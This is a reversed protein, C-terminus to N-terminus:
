ARPARDRRSESLDLDDGRRAEPGGLALQHGAHFCRDVDDARPRVEGLPPRFGIGGRVHDGIVPVIADLDAPLEQEGHLRAAGRLSGALSPEFDPEAPRALPGALYPLLSRHPLHSRVSRRRELTQQAVVHGDDRAAEAQAPNGLVQDIGDDGTADLAQRHDAVIATDVAPSQAHEQVSVRDPLHDAGVDALVLLERALIQRTLDLHLEIRLARQGLPDAGAAGADGGEEGLSPDPM